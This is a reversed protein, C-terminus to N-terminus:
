IKNLAIILFSAYLYIYINTSLHDVLEFFLARSM